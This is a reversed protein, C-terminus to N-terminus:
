EPEYSQVLFDDDGFESINYLLFNQVFYTKELFNWKKNHENSIKNKNYKYLKKVFNFSYIAIQRPIAWLFKITCAFSESVTISAILDYYDTALSLAYNSKLSQSICIFNIKKHKVFFFKKMFFNNFNEFIKQM